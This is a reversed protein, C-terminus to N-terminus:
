ATPLVMTIEASVRTKSGQNVVGGHLTNENFILMNGAETTILQSGLDSLDDDPVPKQLGDVTEIHFKWKKLHSGEVIALGNKGAECYLPIWIKVTTTGPPFMGRGMNFSQHFWTDSHLSGVDSKINPRVLRWYIEEQGHHQYTDYVDSISFNGFENKLIQFFNLSKVEQVEKKSLVRSSKPWMSKHNLLDSFLHYNEIGFEKAKSILLPNVSAITQLWNRSVINRFKELEITSMKLDATYGKAGFVQEKLNM